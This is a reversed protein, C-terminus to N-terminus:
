TRCTNQWWNDRATLCDYVFGRIASEGVYRKLIQLAIDRGACESDLYTTPFSEGCFHYVFPVNKRTAEQLKEKSMVLSVLVSGTRLNLITVVCHPAKGVRKRPKRSWQGDGAASVSKLHVRAGIDDDSLGAAVV